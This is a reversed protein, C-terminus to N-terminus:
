EIPVLRKLKEDFNQVLVLHTPPPEAVSNDLDAFRQGDPTVNFNTFGTRATFRSSSCPPCGLVIEDDTAVAVAVM